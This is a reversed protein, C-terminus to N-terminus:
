SRHRSSVFWARPKNTSGLCSRLNCGQVVAQPLETSASKCMLSPRHVMRLKRAPSEAFSRGQPSSCKHHVRMRERFGIRSRQAAAPQPVRMNTGPACPAARGGHIYGPHAAPHLRINLRARAAGPRRRCAHRPRARSRQPRHSQCGRAPSQGSPALRRHLTAHMDAHTGTCTRIGAASKFKWPRAPILVQNPPQTVGTTVRCRLRPILGRVARPRVSPM